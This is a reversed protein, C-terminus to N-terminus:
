GTIKGRAQKYEIIKQKLEEYEQFNKLTVSLQKGFKELLSMEDDSLNRYPSVMLDAIGILSGKARLQLTIISEEVNVQESETLGPIHASLPLIMVPHDPDLVKQMAPSNLSQQRLLEVFKPPLGVSWKIKFKNENVLYVVGGELEMIDVIQEIACKILEDSSACDSVLNNLDYLRSIENNKREIEEQVKNRETVDRFVGIHLILDSNENKVPSVIGELHVINDKQTIQEIEFPKHSAHAIDVICPSHCIDPSISGSPIDCELIDHMRKNCYITNLDPDTVIVGDGMDDLVTDLFKKTKELENFKEELKVFIRDSYRKLYEVETEILSDVPAIVGIKHDKFVTEIEYLFNKPETPKILFRSAGLSAALENDKESVYHATYFLFPIDRLYKSKKLERLFTFGDMEPMMIDSIIMDPKSKKVYGLAEIGNVAEAVEYGNSILVTSLLKRDNERDDVVM